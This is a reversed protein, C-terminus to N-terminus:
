TIVGLPPVALLVLTTERCRYWVANRSPRKPSALAIPTIMASTVITTATSTIQSPRELFSCRHAEHGGGGPAGVGGGRLGGGGTPARVTRAAALPVAVAGAVGRQVVDHEAEPRQQHHQGQQPGDVRGELGRPLDEG